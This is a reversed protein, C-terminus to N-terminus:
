RVNYPMRHTKLKNVFSTFCCWCLFSIFFFYADYNIEIFKIFDLDNIASGKAFIILLWDAPFFVRVCLAPHSFSASVMQCCWQPHCCTYAHNHKYYTPIFRKIAWIFTFHKGNKNINKHQSSEFYSMENM